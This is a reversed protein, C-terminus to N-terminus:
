RKVKGEEGRVEFCFVFDIFASYLSVYLSKHVKSFKGPIHNKFSSLGKPLNETNFWQDAM